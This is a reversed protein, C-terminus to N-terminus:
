IVKLGTAKEGLSQMVVWSCDTYSLHHIPWDFDRFMGRFYALM